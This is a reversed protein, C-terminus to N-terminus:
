GASDLSPRSPSRMRHLSDRNRSTPNAVADEVNVGFRISHSQRCETFSTTSPLLRELHAMYVVEAIVPFEKPHLRRVRDLPYKTLWGIFFCQPVIGDFGSSMFAQVRGALVVVVVTPFSVQRPLYPGFAIALSRSGYTHHERLEAEIRTKLAWDKKEKRSVYYLTSRAIGLSKAPASKSM